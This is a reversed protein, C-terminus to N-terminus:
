VGPYQFHLTSFFLIKENFHLKYQYFLNSANSSIHFKSRGWIVLDGTPKNQCTFCTHMYCLPGFTIGTLM